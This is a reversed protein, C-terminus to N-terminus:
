HSFLNLVPLHCASTSVTQVYDVESDIADSNTTTSGIQTSSASTSSLRSLTTPRAQAVVYRAHAPDKLLPPFPYLRLRVHLTTAPPSDSDSDSSNDPVLSADMIGWGRVVTLSIHKIMLESRPDIM